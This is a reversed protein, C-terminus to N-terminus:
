YILEHLTDHKLTSIPFLGIIDKHNSVISSIMFAQITTALMKEDNTRSASAFSEIKGGKYSVESKVYIEDLIPVVHKEKDTMLKQKEILYNLHSDELGSSNSGVKILLRKLHRPSPLTLIKSEQLLCYAGPFTFFITSAWVLIDPSYTIKRANLM